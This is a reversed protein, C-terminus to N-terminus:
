SLAATRSDNCTTSSCCPHILFRSSCLLYNALFFSCFLTSRAFTLDLLPRVSRVIDLSHNSSAVSYILWQELNPLRLGFTYTGSSAPSALGSFTYQFKNCRQFRFFSISCEWFKPSYCSRVIICNFTQKEIGAQIRYM